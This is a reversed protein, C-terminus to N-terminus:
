DSDFEPLVRQTRYEKEEAIERDYHMMARDMVDEFPLDCFDCFHMINCILDGPGNIFEELMTDSFDSRMIARYAREAMSAKLINPLDLDPYVGGRFLVEGILNGGQPNKKVHKGLVRLLDLEDHTLEYGYVIGHWIYNKFGDKFSITGIKRKNDVNEDLIILEATTSGFVHKIYGGCTDIVVMGHKPGKTKKQIPSGYLKQVQKIMTKQKSSTTNHNIKQHFIYTKVGNDLEIIAADRREELFDDLIVIATDVNAFIDLIKGDSTQIVVTQTCM